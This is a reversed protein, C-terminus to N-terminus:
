SDRPSPSTYLLCPDPVHELMWITLVRDFSREAFPLRYADGRVLAAGVPGPTAVLHVAAAGLHTESLDLGTLRLHPWRRGILKLEAGVGCGIELLDRAPDLALGGLVSPALLEAQAMLRAQETPSFGHIYGRTM